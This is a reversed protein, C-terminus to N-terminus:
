ALSQPPSSPIPSGVRLRPQMCSEPQLASTDPSATIGTTERTTVAPSHRVLCCPSKKLELSFSLSLSLRQRLWRLATQVGHLRGSRETSASLILDARKWM